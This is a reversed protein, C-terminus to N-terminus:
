VEICSTSEPRERLRELLLVPDLHVQPARAALLDRLARDRFRAAVAELGVHDLGVARLHLDQV